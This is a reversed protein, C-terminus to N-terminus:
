KLKLQSKLAIWVCQHVLIFPFLVDGLYPLVPLSTQNIVTM